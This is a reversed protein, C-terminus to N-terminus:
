NCRILLLLYKKFRFSTFAYLYFSGGSGGLEAFHKLYRVVGCCDGLKAAGYIWNTM